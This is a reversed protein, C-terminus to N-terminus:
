IAEVIGSQTESLRSSFILKILAGADPVHVQIYALVRMIMKKLQSDTKIFHETNQFQKFYELGQGTAFKQEVVYITFTEAHENFYNSIEEM